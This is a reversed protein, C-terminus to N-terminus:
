AEPERSALWEEYDLLGGGRSRVPGNAAVDARWSEYDCRRGTILEEWGGNSYDVRVYENGEPTCHYTMDALAPEGGALEAQPPQQSCAALFLLAALIRM